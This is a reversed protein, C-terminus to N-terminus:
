AKPHQYKGPSPVDVSPAKITSLDGTELGEPVLSQSSNAIEDFTMVKGTYCVERGLIALLTSDCMYGGNNIREREGRIAKFMEDQEAQHMQVSDSDFKWPKLGAIEYACLKAMGDTGYVFDETQNFCGAMQRTSAYTRTNDEWEYVVTFHDYINGHTLEGRAQRGGMGYAKVPPKDFRLWLAKDLSHIFQEVIHDGSAWTYNYWNRCQYMLESEGPKRTKVWVPRTLYDAQTSVITGIQGDNVRAVTEQMGKDYRWCLGSVVNLGKQDALECAARVRRVGAPDTAVPKECFIEKGAEVSAEIHDPRYCPPAALLVVDVDSALLKKYADFGVFCTEDTVKFQDAFRSRSEMSKRCSEVAEPFLDALAVIRVSPDAAMANVAAGSGRGGCGILGVRIVNDSAAHVKPLGTALVGAVAGAATVFDRRTPTSKISSRHDSQSHSSAPHDAQSHNSM